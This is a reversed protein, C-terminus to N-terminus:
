GSEPCGSPLLSWPPRAFDYADPSSWRGCTVSQRPCSSSDRPNFALTLFHFNSLRTQSKTVGHVTYNM